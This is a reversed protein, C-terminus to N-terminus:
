VIRPIGQRVSIPTNGSNTLNNPHIHSAASRDVLVIGNEESYSRSPKRNFIIGGGGTTNNTSSGNSNCTDISVDSSPTAAATNSQYSMGENSPNTQLRTNNVEHHPIAPLCGDYDYGLVVKKMGPPFPIDCPLFWHWTVSPTTGGFMENFEETVSHYETSGDAGVSQKMRAIKSKGTEIAEIQDCSMASTFILFTISAILLGLIITSSYFDNCEEYLYQKGEPLKSLSVGFLGEIGSGRLYRTTDNVFINIENLRNGGEGVENIKQDQQQDEKPSINDVDIIYGCHMSRVLLMFLSILCSLATYFLFLCFFKHNLAGIANNVWPCFHDFKVICRGTVSDHHARNPKYNDQCKHCRRIGRDPPQSPTTTTDVSTEDQSNGATLATTSSSSARRVITFPHAGLPVAGPDTTSAKYLSIMALLSVPIYGVFYIVHLFYSKTIVKFGLVALAYIHVFWSLSIGSCGCKDLSYWRESEFSTGYVVGCVEISRRGPM